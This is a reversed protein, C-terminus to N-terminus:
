ANPSVAWARSFAGALSDFTFPKPLIAIAHDCPECEDPLATIFITPVKGHVNRIEQVADPGRGDALRVDSTIVVPPRAAAMSVAAAHGTAVDFSSAGEMELYTWIIEAILPEDEIILVHCMGGAGQDM